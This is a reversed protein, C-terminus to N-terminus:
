ISKHDPYVICYKNLVTVFKDLLVILAGSKLADEVYLRPVLVVGKGYCAAQIIM